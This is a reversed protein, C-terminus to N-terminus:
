EFPLLAEHSILVDRPRDDKIEDLKFFKASVQLSAPSDIRRRLDSIHQGMDIRFIMHQVDRLQCLQKFVQDFATLWATAPM